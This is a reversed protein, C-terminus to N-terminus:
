SVKMEVVTMFPGKKSKAGMFFPEDVLFSESEIFTHLTTNWDTTFPLGFGVHENTLSRTADSVKTKAMKIFRESYIDALLISETPSHVRVQQMTRRIDKESLYLTVGEWLFLTKKQTDYGSALLREFIEDTSFDVPIFIINSHNIKVATLM